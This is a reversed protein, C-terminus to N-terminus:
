SGERGGVYVPKHCKTCVLCYVLNQMSCIQTHHGNNAGKGQTNVIPGKMLIFCTRRGDQCGSEETRLVKNLKKHVIIDQLNQGRRFAVLPPNM